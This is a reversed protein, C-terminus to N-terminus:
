RKTKPLPANKELITEKRIKVKFRNEESLVGQVVSHRLLKVTGEAVSILESIKGTDVEDKNKIFEERIKLRSAQIAFTDGEFAKLRARLLSRYCALVQFFFQITRHVYKYSKNNM